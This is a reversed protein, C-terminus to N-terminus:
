NSNGDAKKYADILTVLDTLEWPRKVLGAEMAPTVRITSHIKCYNYYMCFIAFAHVHNEFKKSHANTLRTFRRMHMRITLNQRKVYSTNIHKPDPNGTIAKKECGICVSPSYRKEGEPGIMYIKHLMAYDIMGTFANDVAELYTKLGDTTLQVRNNLRNALDNMFIEATEADRNGIMFSVMLKSDADIGTWTWLDGYGLEGGKEQPVNKDKMGCFAWIEDAQIRKTNLPNVNENHYRLCATGADVLLKTVTNISVGTLRTIARISTGEVM